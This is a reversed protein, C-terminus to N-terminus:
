PRIVGTVGSPVPVVDVYQGTYPANLMWGSGLYIGVHFIPRGFMILDGPLIDRGPILRGENWQTAAHHALLLGAHAYAWQVLGSCDYTIPGAAAWVYPKGLQQLATRLAVLGVTPPKARQITPDVFLGDATQFPAPKAGDHRRNHGLGRSGGDSVPAVFTGLAHTRTIHAHRPRKRLHHKITQPVPGMIATTDAPKLTPDVNIAMQVMASDAQFLVKAPALYSTGNPLAGSAAAQAEIDSAAQSLNAADLQQLEVPTVRHSSPVALAASGTGLALGVVAGVGVLSLLARRLTM